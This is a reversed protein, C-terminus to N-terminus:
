GSRVRGDESTPAGARVAVGIASRVLDTRSDALVLKADILQRLVTDPVIV